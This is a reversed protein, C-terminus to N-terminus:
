HLMENNYHKEEEEEAERRCWCTRKRTKARMMIAKNKVIRGRLFTLADNPHESARKFCRRQHSRRKFIVRDEETCM